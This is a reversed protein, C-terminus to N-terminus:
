GPPFASDSSGLYDWVRYLGRADALLASAMGVPRRVARGDAGYSACDDNGTGYNSALGHSVDGGDQVVETERM